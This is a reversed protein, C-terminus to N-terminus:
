LTMGGGALGTFWSWCGRGLRGVFLSYPVLVDYEPSRGVMKAGQRQVRVPFWLSVTVSFWWSRVGFVSRWGSSARRMVGFVFVGSAGGWFGNSCRLLCGRVVMIWIWRWRNGRRCGLCRAVLCAQQRWAALSLGTEWWWATSTSSHIFLSVNAGQEGDGLGGGAWVDQDTPLDGSWGSRINAAPVIALM